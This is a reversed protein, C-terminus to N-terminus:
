LRWPTVVRNAREFNKLALDEALAHLMMTMLLEDAEEVDDIGSRRGFEGDVGDDIVVGRVLMGLHQFPERAVRTKDEVEGRSRGGPEVGDFTQERERGRAADLTADETGELFELICNVVEDGIGVGIGLREDPGFVGVFDDGSDFSPM